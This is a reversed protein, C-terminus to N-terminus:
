LFYKSPLLRPLKVSCSNYRKNLATHGDDRHCYRTLDDGVNDDVDGAADGDSDDDDGATDRFYGWHRLVPFCHNLAQKLYCRQYCRPLSSLSNHPVGQRWILITPCVLKWNTLKQYISSMYILTIRLTIRAVSCDYNCELSQSETMKNWYGTESCQSSGGCSM